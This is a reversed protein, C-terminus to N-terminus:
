RAASQDRRPRPRGDGAQERAAAYRQQREADRRQERSQERQGRDGQERGSQQQDSSGSQGADGGREASAAGSIAAAARAADVPTASESAGRGAASIQVTDASLGHRGLAERLEGVGARLREAVAGNDVAITAGVNTGRLDVRITEQVGSAGDIRLTIHSLSRAGGADQIDRVQSVREAADVGVPATAAAVPATSSASASYASAAAAGAGTAGGHTEGNGERRERDGSRDERAAGSGASTRASATTLGAQAAEAVNAVTAVTAVRAVSAVEAVQAVQAAGAGQELSQEAAVSVSEVQVGKPLELHGPDKMGLTHLGEERAVQQLQAFASTDDWGGDIMVDAARGLTHQSHRTWTVVPGPATRGQAFLADQREQSRTTEVVSVEHGFEERMREIVRGLKERLEASVGAAGAAGEAAAAAEANPTAAAAAAAADTLLGYRMNDVATAAADTAATEEAPADTADTTSEADEDRETARDATAREAAREAARESAERAAPADDPKQASQLVASFPTAGDARDAREARRDDPRPAAGVFEAALNTTLTVPM